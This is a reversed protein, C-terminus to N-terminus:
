PLNDLYQVDKSLLIYARQYGLKRAHLALVAGQLNETPSNMFTFDGSDRVISPTAACVSFCPIQATQAITCVAISLTAECPGLLVNAGGDVLEQALTSTQAVDARNDKVRYDIKWKGGIGGKANIEDVGLQIGKNAEGDSVALVGTLAASYGVVLTDDAALAISSFAWAVM